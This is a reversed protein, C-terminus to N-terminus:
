HCGVHASRYAFLPFYGKLLLDGKKGKCNTPPQIRQNRYEYSQFRCKGGNESNENEVLWQCVKAWGSRLIRWIKRRQWCLKRYLASKTVRLCCNKLTDTCRLHWVHRLGTANIYSEGYGITRIQINGAGCLRSFFDTLRASPCNRLTLVTRSRTLTVCMRWCNM